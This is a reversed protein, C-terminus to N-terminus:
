LMSISQSDTLTAKGIVELSAQRCRGNVDVGFRGRDCLNAYKITLQHTKGMQKIVYRGNDINAGDKFWQSTTLLDIVECTFTITDGEYCSKDRLTITFFASFILYWCHLVIEISYLLSACFLYDCFLM